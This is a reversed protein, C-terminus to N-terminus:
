QLRQSAQAGLTQKKLQQLLGPGAELLEQRRQQMREGLEQLQAKDLVQRAKKFLEKEEEEVHQEVLDMLARARGAFEESTVETALLDPLVLDGVARHKELAEFYLEGEEKKGAERFAPYFIEEEIAAHAEIEMQLKGLLETRTKEARNTTKTLQGFLTRVKEHDSKLLEIADM